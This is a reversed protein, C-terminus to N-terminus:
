TKTPENVHNQKHIRLDAGDHSFAASSAETGLVLDKLHKHDHRSSGEDPKKAFTLLEQARSQM